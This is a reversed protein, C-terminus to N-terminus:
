AATETRRGAGARAPRDVRYVLEGPLRPLWRKVRGAYAAYEDGFARSLAKEEIRVQLRLVSLGVVMCLLTFVSPLVLFFGIQGLGVALFLPNRVLAFPGAVLLTDVMQEARPVGSRWEGDMYAHVYEVGAFSLVLAAFGIIRIPRLELATIPLALQDLGPEIVRLVCFAWIAFRFVNFSSRILRQPTGPEGAHVQARKNRDHFGMGRATYSVAVITFFCALAVRVVDDFPM